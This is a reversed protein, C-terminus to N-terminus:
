FSPDRYIHPCDTVYLSCCESTMVLSDLDIRKWKGRNAKYYEDPKRKPDFKEPTMSGDQWCHTFKAPPKYLGIIGRAKDVEAIWYGYSDSGCRYSMAKGVAVGEFMEEKSRIHKRAKKM